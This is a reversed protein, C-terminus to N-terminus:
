LQLDVFDCVVFDFAKLEVLSLIFSVGDHSITYGGVIMKLAAEVTDIEKMPSTVDIQYNALQAFASVGTLM